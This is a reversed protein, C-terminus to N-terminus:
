KETVEVLKRIPPNNLTQKMGSPWRIEVNRIAKEQGIGFYLRKDQASQYSGATTVMGYQVKGSESTLKLEAGIGDRNSKTGHL